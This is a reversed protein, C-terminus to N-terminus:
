EAKVKEIFEELTTLNYLEPIISYAEELKNKASEWGKGDTIWVFEYQPLSNIKPGIDSYSRAVETLKSGGGSYFNVEILYNKKSTKIVFDFRKKDKGLIELGPLTSSNIERQYTVGNNDFVSAVRNAMLDGSRNKRANTDLGTEVGFVYDVLNKINKDQFVKQLGTEKIFTIVGDASEFYHKIRRVNGDEDIVKKESNKRVAILIELDEFCDKNRDWLKRIASEMDKQGILFNLTNLSIEVDEVYNKIKDFDCFFDLTANTEKLQSLFTNFDIKSM